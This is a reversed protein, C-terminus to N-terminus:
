PRRFRRRRPPAPVEPQHPERGHVVSPSGVKIAVGPDADLVACGDALAELATGTVVFAVGAVDVVVAVAGSQLAQGAADRGTARVPRHTRSWATMAEVGTFVPLALSGSVNALLALESASEKDGGDADRALLVATVPVLVRATVLAVLVPTALGDLRWQALAALLAADAEGLDGSGRPIEKM